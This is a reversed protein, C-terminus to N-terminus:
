YEKVCRVPVGTGFTAANAPVVLTRSTSYQFNLAYALTPYVTSSWAYGYVGVMSFNGSSASKMGTAQWNGTPPLICYLGGSVWEYDSGDLGYWPSLSTTTSTPPVRWGEPCPDYIGKAGSADNWLEANMTSADNTYWNSSTYFTTPNLIANELNNVPITGNTVISVTSGSSDYVPIATTTGNVNAVPGPFPDKRGWQYYLGMVEVTGYNNSLAGLNRDMFTYGNNTYTTDSDPDYSTVWIHWSWLLNGGVSVGVVANGETNGSVVVLKRNIGSGTISMSRIVGGTGMGADSDSWIYEIEVQDNPQFRQNGDKNAWNIPISVTNAGPKLMYANSGTIEPDESTANITVDKTFSVGYDATCTFRIVAIGTSIIKDPDEEMRFELLEGTTDTGGSLTLLEKLVGKPDSIIEASWRTNSKVTFSGIEGDMYYLDEEDTILDFSLQKLTINDTRNEGDKEVTFAIDSVKALFPTATIESDTFASPTITFLRTGGTLSSILSLNDGTSYDFGVDGAATESISLPVDDPTWEVNFQQTEIPNHGPYRVFVLESVPNDQGDTLTLSLGDETSQVVTVMLELTGAKVLLTGTRESGTLNKAVSLVLTDKVNVASFAGSKVALWDAGEEITPTWGRSYDTTVLLIEEGGQKGVEILRRSVGLVYQSNFAFATIDGMDWVYLEAELNSARAAFAEEPTDYGRGRVSDIKFLYTHNRLIDSYGTFNGTGDKEIFDIRYFTPSADAGFYAGLVLCVAEAENGVAVGEKEFLYVFPTATVTAPVEHVLPSTLALPDGADDDLPVTPAGVRYIVQGSETLLMNRDPVVYGRSNANYVRIDAVSFEGELHDALHVEVRAAMRLLKIDANIDTNHDVVYTESEGWMPIPTFYDTLNNWLTKRSFVLQELLDDKFLDVVPDPLTGILEEANAILVFRQTDDSVQVKATM